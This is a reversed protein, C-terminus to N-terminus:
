NSAEDYPNLIEDKPFQHRHSSQVKHCQWFKIPVTHLNSEFEIRVRNRIQIRFQNSSSEFEIECNKLKKKVDKLKM